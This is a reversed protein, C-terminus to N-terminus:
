FVTMDANNKQQKPSSILSKVFKHNPNFFHLDHPSLTAPLCLFTIIGDVDPNANTQILSM